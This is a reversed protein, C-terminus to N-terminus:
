YGFFLADWLAVVSPYPITTMLSWLLHIIVAFCLFNRSPVVVLFLKLQALSPSYLSSFQPNHSITINYPEYFDFQELNMFPCGVFTTPDM